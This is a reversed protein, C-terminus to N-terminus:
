KDNTFGQTKMTPYVNPYYINQYVNSTTYSWNVEQERHIDALYSVMHDDYSDIAEQLGEKQYANKHYFTELPLRPKQHSRDNPIGIALGAIPYTLEPLDLLDIVGQPNRRIGGIPVIGLGMSEAAIIAAGMNLGVDVGGVITAEVSEHAKQVRDNKKAALDTKYFDMVFVMFVPAQEVWTQGGAFEALKAKKEQDTVVIVSTQQGNISNPMAQAARVIAEIQGEELPQSSFNRISRHEKITHIVPNM